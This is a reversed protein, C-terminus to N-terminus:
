LWSGPFSAYIDHIDDWYKEFLFIEAGINSEWRNVDIKSLIQM